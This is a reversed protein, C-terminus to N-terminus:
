EWWHQKTKKGKNLAQLQEYLKREESDIKKPIHIQIRLKLDGRSTGKFYHLGKGRLRLVEDAQTGPPIKVKITKDLSPVEIQTGLVADAIEIVETRWLDAGLREFRSDYASRVIVYLNGPPGGPTPSPLGHGTIRLAMGEEAGKPIKVKLSEEKEIQGRGNCEKCPKDIFTGKGHCAPCVTIQQFM